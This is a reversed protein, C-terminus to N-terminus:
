IAQPMDTAHQEMGGDTSHAYYYYQGVECIQKLPQLLFNSQSIGQVKLYKTSSETNMM